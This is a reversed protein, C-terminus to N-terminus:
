VTNHMEYNSDTIHKLLLDWIKNRNTWIVLLTLLNPIIFQSICYVECHGLILSFRIM